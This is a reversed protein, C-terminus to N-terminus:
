LEQSQYIKMATAVDANEITVAYIANCMRIAEPLSRQHINRGTANGAAGGIHIQEYLEHLFAEPDISSGGACVVRTRGAARVGEQLLRASSEGKRKPANVKVFDSGLCAAVGCAGAILHPDKEDKVGKGRPYIWLVTVFGYEHAQHILQAAERLMEDEYESGLYITYGIGPIFFGTREKFKVVQPISYWASSRPDRQETKVLHTKSNLKVLYPVTSYDKGYRAILGMQAAFAGIKARSAIRFLHEPDGDDSHIAPGSFDDNLHEVKQDGAFLMLRGTSHTISHFNKRYEDHATEPVDRPIDIHKKEVRM